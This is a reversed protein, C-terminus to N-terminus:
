TPVQLTFPIKEAGEMGPIEDNVLPELPTIEEEIGVALSPPSKVPGRKVVEHLFEAYQQAVNDVNFDTAIRQRAAMGIARRLKKNTILAELHREFEEETEALLGDQGHRITEAFHGVKSAVCPIGLAAAELWRLNSKGYNFSNPILPAMAIDWGQNAIHQPYRDVRAFKYITEVGNLKRISHPVGHVLVFRAHPYKGVIRPIINELMALDKEHNAGGAWGIRIGPKSIRKAKDWLELDISNPVVYIHENYESYVEKLYPTSVIMGDSNRFQKLAVDTFPSGPFYVKTAPNYEPTYTIDDDIEALIPTDPYADKLAYITRLSSEVHVMQFVIVDAERAYTNMEATIRHMYLPNVIDTEWEHTTM